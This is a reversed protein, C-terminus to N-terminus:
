DDKEAAFKLMVQFILPGAVFLALVVAGATFLSRMWISSAALSRWTIAGVAVVLGLLTLPFLTMPGPSGCEPCPQAPDILPKHCQRCRYRPERAAEAAQIGSMNLQLTLATWRNRSDDIITQMQDRFKRATEDGESAALYDDVYPLADLLIRLFEEPSNGDHDGGRLAMCDTTMRMALICYERVAGRWDERSLRQQKRTHLLIQYTSKAVGYHGRDLSTDNRNYNSMALHIMADSWPRGTDRMEHIVPPLGSVVPMEPALARLRATFTDFEQYSTACLMMNELASAQLVRLPPADRELRDMNAAALLEERASIGDGLKDWYLVGINYTVLLKRSPIKTLERAAKMLELAPMLRGGDLLQEADEMMKTM